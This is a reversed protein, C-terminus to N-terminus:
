IIEDEILYKMGIQYLLQDKLHTTNDKVNVGITNLKDYNIVYKLQPMNTRQFFGLEILKSFHRRMSAEHVGLPRSLDGPRAGFGHINVFDQYLRLVAYSSPTLYQPIPRKKKAM